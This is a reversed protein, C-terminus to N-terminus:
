ILDGFRADLIRARFGKPWCFCAGRGRWFFVISCTLIPWTWARSMWFEGSMGPSSRHSLFGSINPPEFVEEGFIQIDKPHYWSWEIRSCTVRVIGYSGRCYPQCRAAESNEPQWFLVDLVHEKKHGCFQAGFFICRPYKGM